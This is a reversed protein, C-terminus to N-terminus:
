TQRDQLMGVHREADFMLTRLIDGQALPQHKQLLSSIRCTLSNKVHVWGRVQNGAYQQLRLSKEQMDAHLICICSSPTLSQWALFEQVSM